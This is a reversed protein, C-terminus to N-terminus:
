ERPGGRGVNWVGARTRVVAHVGGSAAAILCEIPEPWRKRDYPMNDIDIGVWRRGYDMYSPPTDDRKVHKTRRKHRQSIDIGDLPEGRIVCYDPLDELKALVAHLSDIDDVPHRVGTWWESKAGSFMDKKLKGDPKRTLSKGVWSGDYPRIAIISDMNVGFRLFYNMGFDCIFEINESM